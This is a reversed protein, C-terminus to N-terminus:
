AGTSETGNLLNQTKTRQRAKFEDWWADGTVAVGLYAIKDHQGITARLAEYRDVDTDGAAEALVIRALVENGFGAGKAAAREATSRAEALKGLALQARAVTVLPLPDRPEAMFSAKALREAHTFHQQALYVRALVHLAEADVPNCRVRRRAGAFARKLLVTEPPDRDEAGVEGAARISQSILLYSPSTISRVIRYRQLDQRVRLLAEALHLARAPDTPDDKFQQHLHAVGHRSLAADTIASLAPLRSVISGIQRTREGLAAGTPTSALQDIADNRAQRLEGVAVKAQDKATGLSARLSRYDANDGYQSDLDAVLQRGATRANTVAVRTGAVARDLWRGSEPTNNAGARASPPAEGRYHSVLQHLWITVSKATGLNNASLPIVHHRQSEPGGGAASEQIVLVSRSTGPMVALWADLVDSQAFEAV